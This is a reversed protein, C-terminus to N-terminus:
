HNSNNSQSEVVFQVVTHRVTQWEIQKLLTTQLEGAARIEVVLVAKREAFGVVVLPVTRKAGAAAPRDGTTTNRRESRFEVRITETARIATSNQTTSRELLTASTRKTVRAVISNLSRENM